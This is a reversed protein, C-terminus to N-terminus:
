AVAWEAAEGHIRGTTTSLLQGGVSSRPFPAALARSRRGGRCVAATHRVSRARRVGDRQLRSVVADQSETGLALLGVVTHTRVQWASGIRVGALRRRLSAVTCEDDVLNDLAVVAYPGNVPVDLVTAAEQVARALDHRAVESM